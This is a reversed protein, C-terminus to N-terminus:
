YLIHVSGQTACFEGGGLATKTGADSLEGGGLPKQAARERLAGAPASLGVATTGFSSLPVPRQIKHLAMVALNNLPTNRFSHLIRNTVSDCVILFQLTEDAFNGFQLPFAEECPLGSM